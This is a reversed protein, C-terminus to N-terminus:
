EWYHDDFCEQCCYFLLLTKSGSGNCNKCGMIKNYDQLDDSTYFGDGSCQNCDDVIANKTTERWCGECKRVEDPGIIKKLREREAQQTQHIIKRIFAKGKEEGRKESETIQSHLIEAVRCHLHEVISAEAELYLPQFAEDLMRLEKENERFENVDKSKPQTLDAGNHKAYESIDNEDGGLRLIKDDDM